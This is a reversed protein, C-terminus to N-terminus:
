PTSAVRQITQLLLETDVPKALLAIAGSREARDRLNIDGRGTFMIVPLSSDRERLVELLEIGSMEPMHLDLILCGRKNGYPDALFAKASGYDRVDMGFAELLARLSDRVASDDDVIYITPVAHTM